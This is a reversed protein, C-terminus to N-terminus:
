GLQSLKIYNSTIALYSYIATNHGHYNYLLFHKFIFSYQILSTLAQAVAFMSLSLSMLVSSMSKVELSSLMEM